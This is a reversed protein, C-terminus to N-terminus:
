ETELLCSDLGLRVATGEGPASQIEVTHGLRDCIRRTLYLGIGTSRKDARGNFGTFGKEFIRPLDEARIGVGTDEIVLTNEAEMHIRIRGSPTYKLANSLIQELVFLLWKEDTLVTANLPEYDLQIRRRIFQPAFKRVAQRVIGDLDYKGIVFDSSDSDLRLYGLVMEVYQEVRFLQERLEAAEPTEERRLILEMAAIPTKIQHAWLTYYEMMDGYRRASELERLNNERRLRELIERWDAEIVSQPPPLTQELLAQAKLLAQLQRHRQRYRWFDAACCVGGVFACLLAAYGAAQPPMGYLIMVAAILVFLACVMVAAGMHEKIYGFFLKM